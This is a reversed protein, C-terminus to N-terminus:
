HTRPLIIESCRKCHKGPQGDHGKEKCVIEIDRRRLAGRYAARFLYIVEDVTAGSAVAIDALTMMPQMCPALRAIEYQMSGKRPSTRTKKPTYGHHAECVRSYHGSAKQKPTCTCVSM